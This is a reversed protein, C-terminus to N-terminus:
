FSEGCCIAGDHTLASLANATLLRLQKDRSEAWQKLLHLWAPTALLARSEAHHAFAVLARAVERQLRASLLAAATLARRVQSAVGAVQEGAEHLPISVGAPLLETASGDVATLRQHVQRPQTNSALRLLLPLAGDDLMRAYLADDSALNALTACM